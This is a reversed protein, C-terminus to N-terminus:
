RPGPESFKCQKLGQELPIIKQPPSRDILQPGLVCRKLGQELPIIKQPFPWLMSATARFHKLGQELPIIKQPHKPMITSSTGQM